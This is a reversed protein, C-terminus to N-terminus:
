LERLMGARENFNKILRDIEEVQRNICEWYDPFDHWQANLEEISKGQQEIWTFYKLNHIRKRDTHSLELVNATSEGMLYRHYDGAAELETYPGLAQRMEEVRTGYLEMSDTFVTLVIDRGTLEYYKAFKISSLLNGISSIGLLPLQRIFEEPVGRANLYRMGEPESFLRVLSMCSEDDIATIM